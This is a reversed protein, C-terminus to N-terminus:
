FFKKKFHSYDDVKITAKQKFTTPTCEIFFHCPIQVVPRVKLPSTITGRSLRVSTNLM